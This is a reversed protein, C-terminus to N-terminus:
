KVGYILGVGHLMWPAQVFKPIFGQKEVFPIYNIEHIGERRLEEVFEEMNGYLNEQSFMDQFAFTGGKKVTRLAEKVVKRKDPQSRVEHFVFNSVAADFSGDYFDLNAADGKQFVIRKAVGEISANRECQEKAYSWGTGWYDMGVLEAKPFKKACRITLAGAGCGIDLLRGKGNWSLHQVLYEHIEGMVGGKDFDFLVRCRWMYFTMALAASLIILIVVSAISGLFFLSLIEAICLVAIVIAFIKMLALSVWNGYNPKQNSTSM